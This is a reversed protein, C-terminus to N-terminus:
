VKIYDATLKPPSVYVTSANFFEPIWRDRATNPDREQLIHKRVKSFAGDAGVVLDVDVDSSNSFGIGTRHGLLPKLRQIKYNWHTECGLERLRRLIFSQLDRREMPLIYTQLYEALGSNTMTGLHRHHGHRIRWFCTNSTQTSAAKVADLLRLQKLPYLGNGFLAIAAGGSQRQTDHDSPDLPDPSRDYLVPIYRARLIPHSLLQIALVPGAIAAGIIGVRLPRTAHEVASNILSSPM